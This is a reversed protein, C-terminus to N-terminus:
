GTELRKLEDLLVPDKAVQKKLKEIDEETKILAFLM